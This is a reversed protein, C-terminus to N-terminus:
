MMANPDFQMIGFVNGETDACYALQGVGPVPMKPMVVTGGHALVGAVTEDVSTVSVTNVTGTVPAGRQTIAGDIGPEGKEGTTILFYEPMSPWAAIKWGFVGEYFKVAREPQDAPFEFHVIRAM